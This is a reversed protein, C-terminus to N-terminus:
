EPNKRCKYFKDHEVDIFPDTGRDKDHVTFISHFIGAAFLEQKISERYEIDCSNNTTDLQDCKDKEIKQLYKEMLVREEKEATTQSVDRGLARKFRNKAKNYNSNMYYVFGSDRLVYYFFKTEDNETIQDYEEIAQNYQNNDLIYSNGLYYRIQYAKPEEELIEKFSNRADEYDRNFLQAKAKSLLVTHKGNQDSVQLKNYLEIAKDYGNLDDWYTDKLNKSINDADRSVLFHGLELLAFFDNDVTEVKEVDKYLNIAKEYRQSASLCDSFYDPTQHDLVFDKVFDKFDEMLAIYFKVQPDKPNYKEALKFQNQVEQIVKDKKEAKQSPNLDNWYVLTARGLNKHALYLTSNNKTFGNIISECSEMINFSQKREDTLVQDCKNKASWLFPNIIFFHEIIILLLISFYIIGILRFYLSPLIILHNKLYDDKYSPIKHGNIHEYERLIQKYTDSFTFIKTKGEHIINLLESIRESPHNNKKSLIIERLDKKRLFKMNM